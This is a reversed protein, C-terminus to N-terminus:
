KTNQTVGQDAGLSKWQLKMQSFLKFYLSTKVVERLNPAGLSKGKETEMEPPRPPNSLFLRLYGM